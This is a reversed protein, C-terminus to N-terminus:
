FLPEDDEAEVVEEQVTESKSSLFDVKWSTTELSVRNEGGSTYQRVSLQSVVVGVLSGKDLYKVCNEALDGFVSVNLWLTDNKGQNVAVRLTTVAKGENTFRLEPKVGLRGIATGNFM